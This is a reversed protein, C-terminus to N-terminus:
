GILDEMRCNLARALQYVTASSARNIDKKGQEYQEIMRVSVGSREALMKQSLEAYARLRALRSKGKREAMRRDMEDVFKTIDAEHYPNYMDRIEAIPVVEEIRDFATSTFWEYYAVAWGAWYEPTKDMFYGPKTEIYEGTSLYIVERALEIGSMGVTYKPEGLGFGYAIRSGIFQRYFATLDMHLDYVAYQLMYGLTRQAAEIYLESYANTM